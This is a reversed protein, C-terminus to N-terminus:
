SIINGYNLLKEKFDNRNDSIKRTIYLPDEHNFGYYDMFFKKYSVLFLTYNESIKSCVQSAKRFDMDKFEEIYKKFDLDTFAKRFHYINYIYDFITDYYGIDGGGMERTMDVGFGYKHAVLNKEVDKVGHKLTLIMRDICRPIM